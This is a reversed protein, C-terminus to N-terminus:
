APMGSLIMQATSSTMVMMTRPLPSYRHNARRLDVAARMASSSARWLAHACPTFAYALHLAHLRPRVALLPPRLVGLRLRRTFPMSAPRLVQARLIFVHARLIFVYPRQMPLFIRENGIM